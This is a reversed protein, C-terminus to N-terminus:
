RGVNVVEIERDRELDGCRDRELPLEGDSCLLNSRKLFDGDGLYSKM